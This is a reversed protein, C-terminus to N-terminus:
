SRTEFLDTGIRLEHFEIAYATVIRKEDLHVRETRDDAVEEDVSLVLGTVRGPAPAQRSM